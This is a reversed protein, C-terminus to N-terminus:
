GKQTAHTHESPKFKYSIHKTYSIGYWVNHSKSVHVFKIQSPQVNVSSLKMEMEMGNEALINEYGFEPPWNNKHTETVCENERGEMNVKNPNTKHETQSLPAPM